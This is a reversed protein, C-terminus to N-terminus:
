DKKREAAICITPGMHHFKNNAHTMVHNYGLKKLLTIIDNLSLWYAYHEVGGLHGTKDRGDRYEFCYERFSHGEYESDRHRSVDFRFNTNNNNQVLEEDYYHTWLFVRDSREAIAKLLELPEAMHYLVGSAVILDYRTKDNAFYKMFDGLLFRSKSMEFLNKVILCRLFARPNAEIATVSKAGHIMELAHTHGGEYPGLELVDLGKVKFIDDVWKMRADNFLPNWGSSVGELPVASLWDGKFIDIQHAPSPAETIMDDYIQGKALQHTTTKRALIRTSLPFVFFHANCGLDKIDEIFPHYTQVSILFNCGNFADSEIEDFTLTPIGEIKHGMLDIAAKIEIKQERCFDAIIKGRENACFLVVPRDRPVEHELYLPKVSFPKNEATSKTTNLTATQSHM